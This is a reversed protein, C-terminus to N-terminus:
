PTPHVPRNGRVPPAVRNGPKQTVNKNIYSTVQTLADAITSDATHRIRETNPIKVAM